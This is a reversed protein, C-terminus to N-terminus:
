GNAVGKRHMHPAVAVGAIGTMPVSRGGFYQGMPIKIWGGVVDGSERAIRLNEFGATVFWADLALAPEVAFAHGLIDAFIPREAESPIGFNLTM